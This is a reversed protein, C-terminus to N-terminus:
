PGSTDGGTSPANGAATDPAIVSDIPRPTETAPAEDDDDNPDDSCAGLLLALGVVFATVTRRRTLAAHTM